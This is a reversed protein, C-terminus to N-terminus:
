TTISHPLNIKFRKYNKTLNYNIKKEEVPYYEIQKKGKRMNFKSLNYFYLIVNRKMNM